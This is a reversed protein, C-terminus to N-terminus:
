TDGGNTPLHSLVTEDFQAVSLMVPMVKNLDRVHIFQMDASDQSFAVHEKPLRQQLISRGAQEQCRPSRESALNHAM